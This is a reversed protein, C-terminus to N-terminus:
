TRSLHLHRVSCAANSFTVGMEETTRGGFEHVHGFLHYRIKHPRYALAPTLPHIGWEDALIGSPPAHTVLIDPDAAFARDVLAGLVDQYSEGAWEGRIYPIERFGAWRFGMYDLGDLPIDIADVGLDRLAPTLPIFDHNGNVVLVPKGRFAARIKAGNTALWKTQFPPEVALNGRSANPFFDGSSVWVDPTPTSGLLSVATGHADSFHAIHLPNTPTM